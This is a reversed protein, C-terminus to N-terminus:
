LIHILKSLFGQGQRKYVDLHTYSVSGLGHAAMALWVQGNKGRYFKRILNDKLNYHSVIDAATDVRSIWRKDVLDYLHTYSVTM